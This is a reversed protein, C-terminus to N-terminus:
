LPDGKPRGVGGGLLKPGYYKNIGDLVRDVDKASRVREMNKKGFPVELAKLEKANIMGEGVNFPQIISKMAGRCRSCHRPRGCHSM